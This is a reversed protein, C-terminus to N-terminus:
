RNAISGGWELEAGLLHVKSLRTPYHEIWRSIKNVYQRIPMRYFAPVPRFWELHRSEQTVIISIDEPIRLKKSMCYSYISAIQYSETVILATPPSYKFLNDLARCFIDPSTDTLQVLNYNEHFPIGAKDFAIHLTTLTLNRVMESELNVMACIRSHGAQHFEHVGQALMESRSVGLGPPGLEPLHGGLCITRLEHAQCWQVIAMAPMVALWRHHRHELYLQEMAKGPKGKAYERHTVFDIDWGKNSFRRHISEVITRTALDQMQLPTSAIILLTKRDKANNGSRSISSCIQRPRGQTSPMIVKRRELLDLASHVTRPSVGLLDCLKRYGPLTGTWEEQKIHEELLDATKRSLPIREPVKM